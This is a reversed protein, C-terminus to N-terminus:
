FPFAFILAHKSAAYNCAVPVQLGEDKKQRLWEQHLGFVAPILENVSSFTHDMRELKSLHQLAFHGALTDEFLRNADEATVVVGDALVSSQSHSLQDVIEEKLEVAANHMGDMVVVLADLSRFTRGEWQMCEMHRVTSAGTRGLM